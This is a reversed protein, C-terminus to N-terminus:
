SPSRDSVNSNRIIKDKVVNLFIDLKITDGEMKKEATKLIYHNSTKMISNEAFFILRETILNKDGSVVQVNGEFYINQNTFKIAASNSTIQTILSKENRLNLCAPKVVISSIKKSSLSPLADKLSPLSNGTLHSDDNIVTKKKLYVDIIGNEFIADNILGLRFFGLKKKEVTFKDAKISLVNEGNELSYFNFGEIQIFYNLNEQHFMEQQSDPATLTRNRKFNFITGFLSVILVFSLLYKYFNLKLM